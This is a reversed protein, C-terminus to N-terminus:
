VGGLRASWHLIQLLHDVGVVLPDMSRVPMRSRWMASGPMAVESMAMSAARQASAWRPTSAASTFAMIMQVTVGSM